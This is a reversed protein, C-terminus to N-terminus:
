RQASMASARARSPKLATLALDIKYVDGTSAHVPAIGFERAFRFLTIDVFQPDLEILRARRGTREAALATTGSGGFSDLIIGRRASCDYIADAVLDTPKVTPHMALTEDRGQQFSSM